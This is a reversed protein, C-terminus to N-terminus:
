STRVGPQPRSEARNALKAYARQMVEAATEPPLSAIMNVLMTVLTETPMADDGQLIDGVEDHSMYPAATSENVTANNLGALSLVEDESIAPNGLGVLAKAARRAIELPLVDKKFEASLYRQVSSAGAYDMAKALDDFSLGARRRLADFREPITLNKPM